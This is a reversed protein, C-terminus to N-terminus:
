KRNTLIKNVIELLRKEYEQNNQEYPRGDGILHSIWQFYTNRVPDHMDGGQEFQVEIRNETLDRAEFHLHSGTSNGTNGILVPLVQGRTFQEDLVASTQFSQLHAYISYGWSHKLKIFNGFDETTLSNPTPDLPQGQLWHMTYYGVAGIVKGDDCCYCHPDPYDDMDYARHGIKYEQTLVNKSPRVVIM